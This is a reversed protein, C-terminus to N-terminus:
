FRSVRTERTVRGKTSIWCPLKLLKEFSFVICPFLHQQTSITISANQYSESLKNAITGNIPAVVVTPMNNQKAILLPQKNSIAAEEVAKLWFDALIGQGKLFFAPFNLNKYHKCEIFFKDTLVHGEPRVATIDGDQRVVIGKKRAVTARGGSMASRWFLDVHKGRSVWLSLAKCTDREFKSGIRKGRGVISGGIPSRALSCLV